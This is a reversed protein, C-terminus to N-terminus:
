EQETRITIDTVNTYAIALFHSYFFKESQGFWAFVVLQLEFFGGALQARDGPNYL